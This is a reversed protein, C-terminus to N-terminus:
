GAGLARLAEAAAARYRAVNALKIQEYGRVIDPLAVLAAVRDQNAPTMQNLATRTLARHETILTRELRRISTAGFPDLRTGRLRRGARLGTLLPRAAPGLHLKRQLGLARLLPPHLLVDIRAGGGFVGNVRARQVADLHLRAVEYEDKYAMLKYIGRAYAQTVTTTHAAGRRQEIALVDLVDDLYSIADCLDTARRELLDRVPEPLAVGALRRAVAPDTPGDLAATAVPGGPGGALVPAGALAGAVAEPDAAAARGWHLAALNTEIAVGNLRIAQEIAGVSVPLCGHQLAAGLMIVNALMHDAFLTQAMAGADLWLARPALTASEIVSVVDDLAPFAVAPDSVMAATATEHLNVVAVTRNPDLTRLTDPSVAGLLDLGLLVDVEGAAARPAGHDAASGPPGIRVDSIVPGGKQALGTQDLGSASRGELVAAMQLIQSVTVVGTGGIGPMRVLVTADPDSIPEPDAGVPPPPPIPRRRQSPPGAAPTVLLFSPCDGELCALDQTCSSQHIQTKRGLETDVPVVSLCTSKGGCDGCGECVRENIWVHQAPTPLKGRKRLRREETACRDTHLLVTVGEVGALEALAVDLQDRHRVSAIAPLSEGAFSAPDETSIIVRKVGDVALWHALETV